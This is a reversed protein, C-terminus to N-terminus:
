EYVTLSAQQPLFSIQNRAELSNTINHAELAGAAMKLEADAAEAPYVKKFAAFVEHITGTSAWAIGNITGNFSMKEETHGEINSTERLQLGAILGSDPVAAGLVKYKNVPKM